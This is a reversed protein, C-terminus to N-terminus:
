AQIFVKFDAVLSRYKKALRKFQRKFEEGPYIEVTM